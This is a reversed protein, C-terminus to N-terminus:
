SLITWYVCMGRLRPMVLYRRALGLVEKWGGEALENKKVYNM